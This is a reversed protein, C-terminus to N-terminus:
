SSAPAPSPAPTVPVYQGLLSGFMASVSACADVNQAAATVTDPPTGPALDPALGDLCACGGPVGPLFLLATSARSQSVGLTGTLYDSLLQSSDTSCAAARVADRGPSRSAAASAAQSRFGLAPPCLALFGLLTVTCAFWVRRGSATKM